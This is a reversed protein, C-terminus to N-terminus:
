GIPSVWRVRALAVLRMQWPIRTPQTLSAGVRHFVSGSCSTLVASEQDEPLANFSPKTTNAKPGSPPMVVPSTSPTVRIETCDMEQTQPTKKNKKNKCLKNKLFIAYNKIKLEKEIKKLQRYDMWLKRIPSIPPM